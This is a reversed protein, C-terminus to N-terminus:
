GMIVTAGDKKWAIIAKDGAAFRGGYKDAHGELGITRGQDLVVDMQVVADAFTIEHAHAGSAIRPQFHRYQYQRGNLEVNAGAALRRHFTIADAIQLSREVRQLGERGFQLHCATSYM